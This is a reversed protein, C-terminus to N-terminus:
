AFESLRAAGADACHAGTTKVAQWEPDSKHAWSMDGNTDTFYGDLSVSNYVVLKPMNKTGDM